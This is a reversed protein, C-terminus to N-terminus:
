AACERTAMEGLQRYALIDMICSRAMKHSATPGTASSGEADERAGNCICMILMRPAPLCRPFFLFEHMAFCHPIHLRQMELKWSFVVEQASKSACRWQKRADYWSRSVVFNTFFDSCTRGGLLTADPHTPPHVTHIAQGRAFRHHVSFEAYMDPQARVAGSRWAHHLSVWCPLCM